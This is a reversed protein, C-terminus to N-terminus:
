PGTAILLANLLEAQEMFATDHMDRALAAMSQAHLKALAYLNTRDVAVGVFAEDLRRLTAMASAYAIVDGHRSKAIREIDDDYTCPIHATMSRREGNRAVDDFHATVTFVFPEGAVWAPVTVRVIETRADGARVDGLGLEGADLRWRVEGGSAELVHSPAPAGSFGLVVNGFAPAGSAPLADRLAYARADLGDDGNWTGGAQGAMADLAGKSVGAASGIAAFAVHDAHLANLETVVAPALPDSSRRDSLVVVRRLTTKGLSAHAVALTHALDPAANWSRAFHNELAAVAMSRHSAPMTPVVLRAGRTDFITVKDRGALQGLAIETLAVTDEGRGDVVIVVDEGWRATGASAPALVDVRVLIEGGWSPVRTDSPRLTIALGTTGLVTPRSTETFRGDSPLIFGVPARWADNVDRPVVRTPVDKRDHFEIGNATLVGAGRAGNEPFILTGDHALFPRECALACLAFAVCAVLKEVKAVM